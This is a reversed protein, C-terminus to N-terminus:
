KTFLVARMVKLAEPSLAEGYDNVLEDAQSTTPKELASLEFVVSEFVLNVEDIEENYIEVEEKSVNLKTPIEKMQSLSVKGEEQDLIMFGLMTYPLIFITCFINNDCTQASEYVMSFGALAPFVGIPGMMLGMTAHTNITLTSVLILATLKFNKFM